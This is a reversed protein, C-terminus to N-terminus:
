PHAPKRRVRKLLGDNLRYTRTVPLHIFRDIRYPLVYVRNESLLSRVPQVMDQPNRIETFQYPLLRTRVRGDQEGGGEEMIDGPRLLPFRSHGMFFFPGPHCFLKETGQPVILFTDPPDRM